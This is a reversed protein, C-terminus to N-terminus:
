CSPTHTLSPHAALVWRFFSFLLCSPLMNHGQLYSSSKWKALTWFWLLPSLALRSYIVDFGWNQFSQVLDATRVGAASSSREPWVPSLFLVQPRCLSFRFTLQAKFACGSFVTNDDGTRRFRPPLWWFVCSQRQRQIASKNLRLGVAVFCAM